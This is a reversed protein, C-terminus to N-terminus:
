LCQISGWLTMGVQEMREEGLIAVLLECEDLWPTTGSWNAVYM